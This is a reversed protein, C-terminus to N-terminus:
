KSLDPTKPKIGLVELIYSQVEAKSPGENEWDTRQPELTFRYSYKQQTEQTSM